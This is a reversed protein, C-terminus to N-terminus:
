RWMQGSRVTALGVPSSSRPPLIAFNVSRFTTAGIGWALVTAPVATVPETPLEHFGSVIDVIEANGSRRAIYSSGARV